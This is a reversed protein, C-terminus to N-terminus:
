RRRREPPPTTQRCRGDIKVGTGRSAIIRHSCPKIVDLERADILGKAQAAEPVLPRVVQVLALLEVLHATQRAYDDRSGSSCRAIAIYTDSGLM